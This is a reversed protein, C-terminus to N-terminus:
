GIAMQVRYQGGRRNWKISADLDDVETRREPKERHMTMYTYGTVTLPQDDLLERIRQAAARATSEVAAQKLERYEVAYLLDEYATGGFQGVDFAEVLSIIVFRTSGSPATDFFVGNPALGRLTPDNGLLTLL